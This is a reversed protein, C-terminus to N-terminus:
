ILIYNDNESLQEIELDVLQEIAHEINEETSEMGDEIDDLTWAEVRVPIEHADPQWSNRSLWSGSSTTGDSNLYIPIRWGSWEFNRANEFEKKLTERLDEKIIITKEM